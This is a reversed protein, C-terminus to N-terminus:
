AATLSSMKIYESIEKKEKKKPVNKVGLYLWIFCKCHQRDLTKVRPETQMWITRRAYKSCIFAAAVFRSHIGPTMNLVQLPNNLDSTAGQNCVAYCPRKPHTEVSLFVVDGIM